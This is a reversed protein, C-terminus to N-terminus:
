DTATKWLFDRGSRGALAHVIPSGSIILVSVNTYAVVLRKSIDLMRKINGLGFTDHSYVLIRKVEASACTEAPWVRRDRDTRSQRAQAVGLTRPLDATRAAGVGSAGSVVHPANAREATQSTRHSTPADSM